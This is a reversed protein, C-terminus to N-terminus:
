YILIFCSRVQVLLWRGVVAAFERGLRSIQEEERCYWYVRDGSHGNYLLEGTNADYFTVNLEHFRQTKNLNVTRM